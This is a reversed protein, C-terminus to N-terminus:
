RVIFATRDKFILITDISDTAPVKNDMSLTSENSLGAIDMDTKKDFFLSYILIVAFFSLILPRM